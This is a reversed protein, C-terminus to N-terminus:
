RWNASREHSPEVVEEARNLRNEIIVDARGTLRPSPSGAIVRVLPIRSHYWSPQGSEQSQSM